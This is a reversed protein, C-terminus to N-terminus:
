KPKELLLQKLEDSVRQQMEEPPVAVTTWTVEFPAAHLPWWSQVWNCRYTTIARFTTKGGPFDIPVPIPIVVEDPKNPEAQGSEYDKSEQKALADTSDFLFTDVHTPCYKLVVFKIRVRADDGATVTPNELVPADLLIVPLSRDGVVLGAYGLGFVFGVGFVIWFLNSLIGVVGDRTLGSM